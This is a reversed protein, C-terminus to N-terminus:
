VLRDLSSSRLYSNPVDGTMSYSRDMDLFM